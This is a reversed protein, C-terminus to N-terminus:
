VAEVCCIPRCLGLMVMQGLYVDERWYIDALNVGCTLTDAHDPGRVLKLGTWVPEYLAMALANLPVPLKFEPNPLIPREWM